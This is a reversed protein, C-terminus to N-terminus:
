WLKKNKYDDVFFLALTIVSAIIALLSVLIMIAIIVKPFFM